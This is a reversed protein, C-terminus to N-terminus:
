ARRGSDRRTRASGMPGATETTSRLLPAAQELMAGLQPDRRVWERIEAFLDDGGWSERLMRGAIAYGDCEQPKPSRALRSPDFVYGKM